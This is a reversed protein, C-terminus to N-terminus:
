GDGVGEGAAPASPHQASALRRMEAEVREISKIQGDFFHRDNSSDCKDAELRVFRILDLLFESAEHLAEVGEVQLSEKGTAPAEADPAPAAFLLADWNAQDGKGIKAGSRQRRIARKMEPTLVLPVLVWGEPVAPASLRRAGAIFGLRMLSEQEATVGHPGAKRATAILWEEALVEIESRDSTM